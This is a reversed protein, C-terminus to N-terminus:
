NNEKNVETETYKKPIRVVNGSEDLVHACYTPGDGDPGFMEYDDWDLDLAREIADAPSTASVDFTCRVPTMVELTVTYTQRKNKTKTKKSRATSKM